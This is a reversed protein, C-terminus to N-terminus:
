SNREVAMSVAASTDIITYMRRGSGEWAAAGTGCARRLVQRLVPAGVSM